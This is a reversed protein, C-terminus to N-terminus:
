FGTVGGGLYYSAGGGWSTRRVNYDLIVAGNAGNYGLSGDSESGGGGGGYAEGISGDFFPWFDGNGGNGGPFSGSGGSIDSGNSGDGGPGAAGGGGGGNAKEEAVGGDGGINIIDGVSHDTRGGDGPTAFAAVNGGDAECIATGGLYFSSNQGDTGDEGNGANGVIITYEVGPTVGYTKFAYAGGGGGAGGVTGGGSPRGGAGGAGYCAIKIVYVGRPAKWTYTGPSDFIETAM